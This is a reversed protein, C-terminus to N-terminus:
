LRVVRVIPGDSDCDEAGAAGLIALIQQAM